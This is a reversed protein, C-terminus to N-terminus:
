DPDAPASLLVRRLLVGLYGSLDGISYSVVTQTQRELQIPM